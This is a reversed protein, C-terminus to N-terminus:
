NTADWGGGEEGIYPSVHGETGGCKSGLASQIGPVKQNPDIESMSIYPLM